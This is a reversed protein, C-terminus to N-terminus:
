MEVDFLWETQLLLIGETM